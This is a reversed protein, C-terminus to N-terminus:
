WLALVYHPNGKLALVYHAEQERIQKAIETQTGMADLTVICGELDLVELLAPVATIKNSQEDVKEQAPVLRQQCAWASLVHLAAKADGKEYSRRLTRGDM